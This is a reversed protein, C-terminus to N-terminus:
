DRIVVQPLLMKSHDYRKALQVYPCFDPRIPTTVIGRKAFVNCRHTILRTRAKVTDNVFAPSWAREAVGSLRAWIRETIMSQDVQEGWQCAEIGLVRSRAADSINRLPEVLYMDEWTDVWLHRDRMSPDPKQKDLYFGASLVANYGHSEVVPKLHEILEWVQVISDKPVRYFSTKLNLLLEEWCILKKNQRRYIPELISQFYGWLDFMTKIDPRKQLFQKVTEDNQWCSLVLEDGGLHMYNNTFIPAMDSLMAEIIDYTLNNAPQVPFNNINIPPKFQNCTSRAEPYALGWSYAHGPFDFEPIVVIGRIFCYNVIERLDDHTYFLKKHWRAKEGLLPYKNVVIPITQADILHIHLVNLKDYTMGDIITKITNMPLFHRSTDIM